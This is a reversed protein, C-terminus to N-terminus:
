NMPCICVDHSTNVQFWGNATEQKRDMSQRPVVMGNADLESRLVSM